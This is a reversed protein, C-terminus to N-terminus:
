RVSRKKLLEDFKKLFMKNVADADTQLDVLYNVIMEHVMCIHTLHQYLKLNDDILYLRYVGRDKFKVRSYNVQRRGDYKYKVPLFERIGIRELKGNPTRVLSTFQYQSYAGYHFVELSPINKISEISLWLPKGGEEGLIRMNSALIFIRKAIDVQMKYLKRLLKNQTKLEDTSAQGMMLFSSEQYLERFQCCCLLMNISRQVKLKLNKAYKLNTM